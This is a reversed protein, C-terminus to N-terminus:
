FRFNIHFSPMVKSFQIGKSANNYIKWHDIATPSAPYINEEVGSEIGGLKYYLISYSFEGGVAIYKNLYINFGAFAGMGAAFGGPTSAIYNTGRGSTQLNDMIYDSWHMESYSLYYLSTGCYSEIYKKKVFSWQIGAAYKYIKQRITDNKTINSTVGIHGGHSTTDGIGDYHSVLDINTIGFELRLTIDDTIRYKPLISLSVSKDHKNGFYSYYNASPFVWTDFLKQDMQAEVSNIAASFSWKPLIEKRRLSDQQSFSFSCLITLALTILFKTKSVMKKLINKHEHIKPKM